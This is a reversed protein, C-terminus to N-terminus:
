FVIFRPDSFDARDKFDDTKRNKQQEGNIDGQGEDVPKGAKCELAPTIM